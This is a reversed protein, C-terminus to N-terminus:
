YGARSRRMAARQRRLVAPSGVLGGSASLPAAPCSHGPTPRELEPEPALADLSVDAKFLREAVEYAAVIEGQVNRLVALRKGDRVVIDGGRVPIAPHPDRRHDRWYRDHVRDFEVV